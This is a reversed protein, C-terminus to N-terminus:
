KSLKTLATEVHVAALKEGAADLDELLRTMRERFDGAQVADIDMCSGRAGKGTEM